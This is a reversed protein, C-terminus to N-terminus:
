FIFYKNTGEWIAYGFLGYGLFIGFITSFSVFRM